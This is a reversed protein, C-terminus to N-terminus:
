AAARRRYLGHTEGAHEVEREKALGAKEMVREDRHLAALLGLHSRDLPDAGLRKTEFAGIV